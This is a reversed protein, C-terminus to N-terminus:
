PSRAGDPDGPAVVYREALAGPSRLRADVVLATERLLATVLAARDAPHVHTWVTWVRGTPRAAAAIRAAERSAAAADRTDFPRGWVVGAAARAAAAPGGNEARARDLAAFRPDGGLGPQLFRVALEAGHYVYLGEGPRRRNLAAALVPGLDERPVALHPNPWWALPSFAVFAAVVLAALGWRVAAAVLADLRGAFKGLWGAVADIGAAVLLMWVPANFLGHRYGLPYLGFLSGLYTLALTGGLWGGVIRRGAPARRWLAVAGVAALASLARTIPLAAGGAFPFFTFVLVDRWGVDAIYSLEKALHTGGFRKQVHGIDLRDGLGLALLVALAAALALSWALWPRWRRTTRAQRGLDLGIVALPFAMGYHTGLAALSVAGLVLWATTEDNGARLREWAVMLAVSWLAVFAYQNIERAYHVHVPSLAVFLGVMAGVRRGGLRTAWGGALVVAATGALASPLRPWWAGASSGITQWAALFLAYLPPDQDIPRGFLRQALPLQARGLELLEDFWPTHADLAVARTALAVLAIGIPAARRARPTREWARLPKSPRLVTHEQHGRGNRRAFGVHYL